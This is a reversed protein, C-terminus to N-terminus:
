RSIEIIYRFKAIIEDLKTYITSHTSEPLSKNNQVQKIAEDFAQDVLQRLRQKNHHVNHKFKPLVLQNIDPLQYVQGHDGFRHDKFLIAGTVVGGITIALLVGSGVVYSVTAAALGAGISTMSRQENQWMYTEATKIEPVISVSIFDLEVDLIYTKGVAYNTDDLISRFHRELREQMRKQEHTLWSQLRKQAEQVSARKACLDSEIQFMSAELSRSVTRIIDEAQDDIVDCILTFTKQLDVVQPIDSSLARSHQVTINERLDLAIQLLREVQALNFIADKSDTDIRKLLEQLREWDHEEKKYKASLLLLELKSKPIVEELRQELKEFVFSNDLSAVDIKNAVVIVKQINQPLKNLFDLEQRSIPLNVDVVFLVIYVRQLAAKTRKDFDISGIGPTEILVIDSLLNSLPSQIEIIDLQDIWEALLDVSLSEPTVKRSSGEKLYMQVSTEGARVQIDYSGLSTIQPPINVPLLPKVLLANILSSKGRGHLGCVAIMRKDLNYLQSFLNADLIDLQNAIQYLQDQLVSIKEVNM